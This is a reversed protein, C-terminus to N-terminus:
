EYNGETKKNYVLTIDRKDPQINRREAAAIVFGSLLGSSTLILLPM